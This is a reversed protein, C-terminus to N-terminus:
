NLFHRFEELDDYKKKIKRAEKLWRKFDNENWTENTMADSGWCMGSIERFSVGEVGEIYRNSLYEGPKLFAEEYTISLVQHDCKEDGVKEIIPIKVTREGKNKHIRTKEKDLFTRFGEIDNSYNLINAYFYMRSLGFWNVSEGYKDFKM